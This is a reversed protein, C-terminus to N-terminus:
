EINTGRYDLKKYSTILNIVANINVVPISWEDMNYCRGGIGTSVLDERIDELRWLIEDLLDKNHGQKRM